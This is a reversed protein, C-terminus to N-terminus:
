RRQKRHKKPRWGGPKMVRRERKSELLEFCEDVSIVRPLNEPFSHWFRPEKSPIWEVFPSVGLGIIEQAWSFDYNVGGIERRVFSAISEVEDCKQAILENRKMITKPQGIEFDLPREASRCDFLYLVRGARVAADTERRDGNAQRLERNPLLDFGNYALAQRFSEEFAIGRATQNHPVRFFLNKLILPPASLDVLCYDGYPVILPRPGSSWLAIQEQSSENLSLLRFIGDLDEDLHVGYPSKVEKSLTSVQAKFDQVGMNVLHYGRQALHHFESPASRHDHASNAFCSTTILQIALVVEEYGVGHRDRFGSSMLAHAKVYAGYDFKRIVFNSVFDNPYGAFQGPPAWEHVTARETNYQCALGVGPFSSGMPFASLGVSTALSTGRELRKDYSEILDALNAERDEVIVEDRRRIAAGKGIARLKATAWWYEYALGELRFVEVHDEPGYNVLVWEAGLSNSYGAYADGLVKRGTSEFLGGLVRERPVQSSLAIDHVQALNGYKLFATEALTRVLSVTQPDTKGSHDPSLAVGVRRYLHLWFYPSHKRAAHALRKEIDALYGRFLEWAAQGAIPQADVKGNFYLERLKRPEELLATRIEGRHTEIVEHFSLTYYELRLPATPKLEKM